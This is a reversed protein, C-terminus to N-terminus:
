YVTTDIQQEWAGLRDQGVGKGSSLWVDTSRTKSDTETRCYTWRYWQGLNWVLSVMRCKGNETQNAESLIIVELDAARSEVGPKLHTGECNRSIEALQHRGIKIRYLGLQTSSIIMPAGCPSPFPSLRQPWCLLVQSGSLWPEEIAPAWTRSQPLLGLLCPIESTINLPSRPDLARVGLVPWPILPFRCGSTVKHAPYHIDWLCVCPSIVM